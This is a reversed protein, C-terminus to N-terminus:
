YFMEAVITILTFQQKKLQTFDQKYFVSLNLYDFDTQLSDSM